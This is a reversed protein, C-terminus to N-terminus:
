PGGGITAGDVLNLIEQVIEGVIRIRATVNNRCPVDALNIVHGQWGTMGEELKIDLGLLVAARRANGALEILARSVNEEADGEVDSGVGQEGHHDCLDGAVPGAVKDMGEAIGMEVGVVEFM